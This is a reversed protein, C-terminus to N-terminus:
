GAAPPAGKHARFVFAQRAYSLRHEVRGFGAAGLRDAIEAAPLYHFRGARAQRTLWRGYRLMRWGNRLHRLPHRAFLLHPLGRWAVTAWSPDPVNVSFVFRGGPRLVRCVEGLLCDYAARTWRGATADYHEAYSISLGSVAHDFAADALPALGTSFDHCLFAVRDGSRPALEGRLRAYATENAAACDVGLVSGLPGRRGGREWLGRTLAGGGCGLDLWREGPAPAAWDLTHALLERYPGAHRQSWFAKACKASPWHNVALRTM